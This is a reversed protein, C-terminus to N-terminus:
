SFCQLQPGFLLTDCDVNISGQLRSTLGPAWFLDIDGAQSAADAM